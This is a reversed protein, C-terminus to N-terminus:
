SPRSPASPSRWTAYDDGSGGSFKLLRRSMGEELGPLEYEARATPHMQYYALLDIPADTTYDKAFKEQIREVIPDSISTAGDIQFVPGVFNGRTLRIRRVVGGLGADVAPDINGQFASPLQQLVNLLIDSAQQKQANTSSKSFSVFVLADSLSKIQRALAAEALRDQFKLQIGVAKALDSDIIEVLEFCQPGVDRLTCRIDPEPPNRSEVSGPAIPLEVANAFLEFLARESEAQPTSM